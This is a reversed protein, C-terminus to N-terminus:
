NSKRQNKRWRKKLLKNVFHQEEYDEEQAEPFLLDGFSEILGDEQKENNNLFNFFHHPEEGPFNTDNSISQEMPPVTHEKIEPKINNIWCDNFTNASLEKAVRSGNCVIKSNHDIFTVGYIRGTDNRRVVVNIGQIALQKKFNSEDSTTQLAITVASKLTKQTPHNKLYTKCKTFHLELASIGASKGFLSAKIPHGAREGKENLPFYLLGHQMKGHLEGEVKETTINFLSLLANYEGLTQYLYYNPLHRVVSAIQSKVDGARYDVPRFIKENQKHQKDTAPILGHKRELERCVKMSRMKEFKDSIKKGEENVCVSVIHIHSRSTDTHKFVVFPQNSYGMERMYQEAMERFKDDSVKDNPDPNLSIHLTHKETNRNAILYPAFSQALQAVSYHGSATEIMKNAFLIHGNEHEVKLQNYALAGYLNGSRGIKAIM